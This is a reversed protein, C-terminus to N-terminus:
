KQLEDNEREDKSLYKKWFPSAKDLDHIKYKTDLETLEMNKFKMIGLDLKYVLQERTQEDNILLSLYPNECDEDEKQYIFKTYLNKPEIGLEYLCSELMSRTESLHTAEKSFDKTFMSFFDNLEEKTNEYKNDKIELVKNLLPFIFTRDEKTYGLTYYIERLEKDSIEIVNEPQYELKHANSLGKEQERLQEYTKGFYMPRAGFLTNKADWTPDTIINGDETEVLLYSHTGSSLEKTSIGVRSLINRTIFVIGNCVSEEKVLSEWINRTDNSKTQNVFMGSFNFDPAYSVLKGIQYHVYAAIQKKNWNPQINNVVKKIIEEGKLFDEKSANGIIENAIYIKDNCGKVYEELQQYFEQSEDGRVQIRTYNELNDIRINYKSSIEELDM